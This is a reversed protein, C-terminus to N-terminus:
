ICEYRTHICHLYKLFRKLGNLICKLISLCTSFGQCLIFCQNRAAFTEFKKSCHDKENFPDVIWYPLILLLQRWSYLFNPINAKCVLYKTLFNITSIIEIHQVSHEDHHVNHIVAQYTKKSLVKADFHGLVLEETGPVLTLPKFNQHNSKIWSM